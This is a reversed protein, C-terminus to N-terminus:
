PFMELIYYKNRDTDKKSQFIFSEDWREQGSREIKKPNYEARVNNSTRRFYFYAVVTMGPTVRFRSKGGKDNWVQELIWVILHYGSVV